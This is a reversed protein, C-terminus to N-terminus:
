ILNFHTEELHKELIEIAEKEILYSSEPMTNNLDAKMVQLVLNFAYSKTMPQVWEKETYTKTQKTM